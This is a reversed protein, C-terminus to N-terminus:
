APPRHSTTALEEPPPVMIHVAWEQKIMPATADDQNRVREDASKVAVYVNLKVTCEYLM